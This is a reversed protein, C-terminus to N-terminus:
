EELEWEDSPQQSQRHRREFPQQHDPVLATYPQTILERLSLHQIRLRQIRRPRGLRAAHAASVTRSAPLSGVEQPM